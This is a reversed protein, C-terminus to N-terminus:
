AKIGKFIVSACLPTFIVRPRLNILVEGKCPVAKSIALSGFNASGEDNMAAMLSAM